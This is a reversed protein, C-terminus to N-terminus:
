RPHIRSPIEFTRELVPTLCICQKNTQKDYFESVVDVTARGRFVRCNGVAPIVFVTETSVKEYVVTYGARLLKFLFYM